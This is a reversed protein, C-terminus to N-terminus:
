KNTPSQKKLDIVWNIIEYHHNITYESNPHMIMIKMHADLITNLKIKPHATSHKGVPTKFGHHDSYVGKAMKPYGVQQM